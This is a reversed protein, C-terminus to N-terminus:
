SQGHEVIGSIAGARMLLALLRTPDTGEARAAADLLTEGRMLASQFGAEGPSLAIVPVQDARDRLVLADEALDARMPGPQAGGPQNAQWITAVAYHSRILGVSPHLVLGYRAPDTAARALASGEVVIVDAAHYALGRQWELRAIDPLYPLSQVPSFGQLFRAFGEGWLFLQPSNPPEAEIYVRAMATFFEAGVLREVVPYRRGLAKCLSHAVNNRYVAFRQAAEDPAQATVGPPLAGKFLAARFANTFEAHRQM